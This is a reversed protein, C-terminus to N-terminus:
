NNKDEKKNKEFWMEIQRLVNGFANADTFNPLKVMFCPNDIKCKQLVLIIKPKGTKFMEDPLEVLGVISMDKLLENKFEQNQDYNFFDNELIAILAGDKNVLDKLHTMVKYPFYENDKNTEHPMDLVVVDNGIQDYSFMDELYIETQRSLIDATLKTLRVMEEDKDVAFLNMDKDLYNSITFLLNGTGCMPDLINIVKKNIMKSILYAIFIGLTDPTTYGNPIGIEKFGLLIVSQMAKRIDESTFDIGELKHYCNTLKEETEEEVDQLVKEELMNNITMELLDFYPKHFEEFLIENSETIVDYFLELNVLKVDQM